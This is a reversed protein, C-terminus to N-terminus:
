ANYIECNCVQRSLENIRIDIETSDNYLRSSEKLIRKVM